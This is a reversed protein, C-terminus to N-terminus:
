PPSSPNVPGSGAGRPAGPTQYQAPRGNRMEALISLSGAFLLFAGAASWMYSEAIWVGAAPLAISVAMLLWGFRRCRAYSRIWVLMTGAVFILAIAGLIPENINIEFGFRFVIAEM